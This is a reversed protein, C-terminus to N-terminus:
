FGHRLLINSYTNDDVIQKFGQNFDNLHTLADPAKRPFAVYLANSSLPKSVVELLEKKDPSNNNIWYVARKRSVAVLDLRGELLKKLNLQFKRVAEKKLFDAADFDPSYAYGNEIGIRYPKLDELKEWVIGSGKRAFFVMEAKSVPESYVLWQNREDNYYIGLLADYYLNGVEYLARKWPLYDISIEYGMRKFSERVIDSFYGDNMLGPGYYPEWQLTTFKIIKKDQAIGPYPFLFLVVLVLPLIICWLSNLPLSEFRERTM